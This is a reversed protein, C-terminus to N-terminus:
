ESEVEPFVEVLIRELAVIEEGTLENFEDLQRKKKSLKGGNQRCVKIFLEAIRDPMDVVARMQRRAEDYRLLYAVESPLETEITEKAFDYFIEVLKTCDIYRYLDITEGEVTMRLREDLEYSIKGELKKSYSELSQDYDRPRNLIVASIPLIVGDMSFNRKALIHHILFRHIRGNGDSFPHIFNFLYSIVAAAVLDPVADDALLSKSIAIFEQMLGSVNEPKPAIYHIRERGPAVSEGVYIQEDLQDRYGENAYRPDVIANQLGVLAEKNLFDDRGAQELLDIFARNRQVTPTEREIAYSSKSEKAYLYNVARQYVAEPFGDIVQQCKEKLRQNEAACDLAANRRVMPAYSLNGLVNHDIRQRSIKRPSATYYVAPDVLPVYNVRTLDDLPLRQGAFAEYLYWVIRSYRGTPTSTVYNMVEAEVLVPMLKRLLELHLGEKKLAFEIHNSWHNGPWATTRYVEKVHGEREVTHAAGKEQVFSTIWYDLTQIGYKEKLWIYGV